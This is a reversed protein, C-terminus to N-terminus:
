RIIMGALRNNEIKMNSNQNLIYEQRAGGSDGPMHVDSFSGVFRNIGEDGRTPVEMNDFHHRLDQPVKDRHSKIELALFHPLPSGISYNFNIVGPIRNADITGAVYRYLEPRGTVPQAFNGIALGHFRFNQGAIQRALNNNDAHFFMWSPPTPLATAFTIGREAIRNNLMPNNSRSAFIGNIESNRPHNSMNRNNVSIQNTHDPVEFFPPLSNASAQRPFNNWNRQNFSNMDRFHFRLRQNAYFEPFINFNDISAMSGRWMIHADESLLSGTHNNNEMTISINFFDIDGNAIFISNSTFRAGTVNNVGIYSHDFSPTVAVHQSTGTFNVSINGNVFFISNNIVAGALSAPIIGQPRPGTQSIFIQMAVNARFYTDVANYADGPYGGLWSLNGVRRDGFGNIEHYRSQNSPKLFHSHTLTPDFNQTFVNTDRHFSQLSRIYGPLHSETPIPYSNLPNPNVGEVIFFPLNDHGPETRIFGGGSVYLTGSIRIGRINSPIEFIGSIILNGIIHVYNIAPNSPLSLGSASNSPYNPFFNPGRFERTGMMLPVHTRNAVRGTSPGSPLHSNTHGQQPTINGIFTRMSLFTTNGGAASVAYGGSNITHINNNTRLEDWLSDGWAFPDTVSPNFIRDNEIDNPFANPRSDFAWYMMRELANQLIEGEATRHALIDQESTTTRPAGAIYYLLPNEFENSSLNWHMFNRNIPEGERDLHPMSVGNLINTNNPSPNNINPHM